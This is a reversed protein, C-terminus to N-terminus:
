NWGRLADQLEDITWDRVPRADWGEPVEDGVLVVGVKRDPFAAEVVLGDSTEFGAVFNPSDAGLVAEVLVRVDDDILELEERQEETLTAVMPSPPEGVGDAVSATVGTLAVAGARHRIWLDDHDGSTAQTSGAIVAGTSDDPTGLFQLVNAWALWDSWRARHSLDTVAADDDPLVAFATWREANPDALDLYLVLDLGNVTSTTAVMGITAEPDATGAVDFPESALVADLVSSMQEADVRPPGSAGALGAVSSLALRRWDENSPRILYQLLLDMPNRQIEGVDITGHRALHVQQAKGKADTGLLTRHPPIQPPDATVATHFREVDDWSLNWVLRGSARVGARKRADDAIRNHDASAHFQYGDLYITVEPAAADMRKILFDPATNPSTMLGPQEEIRYRIVDAGRTITLEFAEYRGKGPVRIYDLEGSTDHEVWERLAVKFRRELESEEVQAISVDGITAVKIPDWDELLADLLEKALERRALDYEWRDIVGLLCRHCAPRGESRCPCRVIHERAALLIQHVEDPDALPGLYGTGGPVQDYLVLFRRRGQGSVNPADATAVTLHEPNGGLRARIGLLLAAKFSVLREDVEFMSVPVVFRIAETTLEHLLVVPDWQEGVSGSRVKCWGQHLREPRRGGGDNRADKVAGCHRCVTFSAVHRDQGAVPRQEGPRESMGLNFTRLRTRHCLEAGFTQAQILWAGSVETPEPDVLTVVEYGERVREDTDDYVRSQEESGSALTTRLRLVWHQSGVDAIGARGCRPCTTPPRGEQELDAFACDPCLRWREYLPEAAAGIELADVVHRHGDAYFTNGPAFERIAIRGPRDYSVVETRYEDDVKSWMTASLEVSDDVLTYNPLVGIRELASLSYEDRHDRLLRVVASRQGKLSKLEEEDPESRNGIAELKDIATNLRNRRLDLDKRHGFWDDAAEKLRPEIGGGAFDRLKDAAPKTLQTGFLDIFADVHAPTGISADVIVRFLGEAEFARKMLDGVRNALPPGAVTGKAILDILYAVYQRELTETAELYCNPPRVVGALMAEPEALYYLGHTDSRVFTTVLANGTARGARGVRQIYSAPNRPVSTLMVASLDGIDIGMELTPTATLVNPADPATGVKFATEVAERERRNLLGTHEATVVRRPRGQRYFRRYYGSDVVTQSRLHGPCRYRRCPVGIWRDHIDPLVTDAAGCLDCRVVVPDLLEDGTGPIDVAVVARRDLGYVRQGGAADVRRIVETAQALTDVVRQNVAQAHVPDLGLTRAAWDIFWTPTMAMATLSDFESRGATTAFIPRGQGQAFPPLGAPRGGWIFWQKGGDEVYKQLLPHFLAGSTRLREGLGLVYGELGREVTEALDGLVDRVAEAALDVAEDLEGWAVGSAAAVSQELTRGVRARLGFELDVEFGVRSDLVALADAPPDETWVPRVRHDRLLDPPVLGFRDHPTHAEAMLADGLDVLNIGDPHDQLVGSILARLNFRHSRGAFFAARHSADQVSDTFALLKREEAEVHASGFMTNITVSALSAVALGVFRIADTERCAPCTQRRGDDDEVSVHVAITHEDATGTVRLAIPDFPVAAPDEGHARLVVRVLPSRDIAARYIAGPNDSFTDRLESRLTMWGAHGCRRCYVAPLDVAAAMPGQGVVGEGNEALPAPLAAAAPADAWRFSTTADVGRLVRSVERVWLQVEVPLLPTIRTGVRRRAISLLALYRSVAIAVREPDHQAVRGWDPARAVIEVVADDFSRTREGVASLVARTLPHALLRVGLEVPDGVPTHTPDDPRHCFAFALAELDDEDIQLVDDVSPIPLEYDVRGCAEDVTQRTEGIVADAGVDVGFVKTAFDRLDAEASRESGMTASTAVPAASGLPRDPTAMDLTAGLRRLLMAVDTGQAGDYTHFEDLVVYRLTEPENAAWLDHDERRLLLFDLMKYNTLLIDPPSTRLAYREDVLHDPGMTTHSGNDGIYLGATLGSLRPDEAILGAIRTAQDSALANMPYLILAKIGKGGIDRQRACHDLIPLLFCETKGSGTGTTVLTAEPDRGGVSSLREFAAAQHQYPVLGEPLWGLPSKWDSGVPRFPTRVRLYPGRFIGQAPDTLFAELADRVDDDALSFTTALYDVLARRVEGAVLSPIM